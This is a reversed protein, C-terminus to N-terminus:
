VKELSWKKVSKENTAIGKIVIQKTPITKNKDVIISDEIVVESDSKFLWINNSKSKLIINKKNNTYNYAMEPMLHFRIHYIIRNNNKKISLITDEGNIKNQNESIEIKRKVIKNFKKQYGNHSGEFVKYENIRNEQFTVSQPFKIHPNNEVIESINTNQLVITSHAASYRLYEPNKGSSESAGCNSFIKEGLCSFEISLTGASLNNSVRNTNPQVVDFFLKKNKDSYFAIGNKVNSFTRSKLYEDKNLSEYIIKTYNNNAGNFLPISGDSHFYENLISTMRILIKEITEPYKSKFYLLINKLEHINNLFKAHDLINYSKHMGLADIHNEIVKIMFNNADENNKGLLQTSLLNAILDYSNIESMSKYRFEFQSRNIHSIIVKNLKRTEEDTSSSNIFEYNYVINILRRSTLDSSWPYGLKNKNLDYWDIITKKSLTIGIEGGLNQSFNLFDFSQVYRNNLKYFNKKFIFTKIQKYNTFDLRKFNLDNFFIKNNNKLLKSTIYIFIIKRLFKM